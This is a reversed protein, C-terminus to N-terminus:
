LKIVEKHLNCIEGGRAGTESLVLVIDRAEPNMGALTGTSLPFLIM